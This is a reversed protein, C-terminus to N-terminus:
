ELGLLTKVQETIKLKFPPAYNDWLLMVVMLQSLEDYNNAAECIYEANNQDPVSAILKDGAYVGGFRFNWPTQDHKRM